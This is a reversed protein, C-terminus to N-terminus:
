APGWAASLKDVDDASRCIEVSFGLARLQRHRYAQVASLRGGEPRKTEVWYVRGGPLLVLRDPMGTMADPIFKVCLGGLEKVRRTLYQEVDRELKLGFGGESDM